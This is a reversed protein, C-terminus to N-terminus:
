RGQWYRKRVSRWSEVAVGQDIRVRLAGDRDTRFLQAGVQRYRLLVADSPHHFRNRHGVPIIAIRPHVRTLFEDSSSTASGHHPVLLVDAALSQPVREVLQTEVSREIDATLLVSGGNAVVRLVCSRDNDKTAESNYGPWAPHLMEFRVGDWEWRQGAYCRLTRTPLLLLPHAAPLSSVVWGVPLGQLVSRAGGTHDTDDHSLILGDLRRMGEARLYPVLIRSGSDADTAFSPGADFVLAHRQTRVVTALGQGVDLVDVWVSGPAPSAVPALLLPVMAVLGLWRAPFGRPALLWLVGALAVPLTWAPPAQQQWVAEPLGALGTLGLQCWAMLKAAVVLVLDVPVLIGILTLPVVGLSVVPIAIANAIPSVLSVQQFLVLLLPVLGLTIAWQVRAWNLLWGPRRVRGTGVYLILAVAGFSLWFGPALVAWPDIASVVGLATALVAMAVSARGLLLAAAVVALMYVTRQAPVGFGSLLAYAFAATLGAIAAAKQAPIRLAAGPLRRWGWSVAMLVLGSVMTIHLGSISMLHNVGTRTFVTWQEVGIAQQDGVALAVLVGAVSADTVAGRIRTRARERLREMWYGPRPVLATLLAPAPQTRVYGTARIGRELLWVEVDFGHPNATGHPRRLRATVRWRQGPHLEPLPRDPARFWSLMLRQPARALPTVVAEVEFRARMGHETQQPLDAVVGILEIDRGEWDLPLADALRVHAAGTAWIFGAALFVAPLAHRAANRVPSSDSRTLLLVVFAVPLWAYGWLVSPLQARQQLLWVGLAFALLNLPM